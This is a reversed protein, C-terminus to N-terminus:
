PKSFRYTLRYVNNTHKSLKKSFPLCFKSLTLYMQQNFTQLFCRGRHVTSSLVNHIAPPRPILPMWFTNSNKQLSKPYLPTDAFTAYPWSHLSFCNTDLVAYANSETYAIAPRPSELDGFLIRNQESVKQLFPPCLGEKPSIASRAFARSEFDRIGFPIPPEFGERETHWASCPM